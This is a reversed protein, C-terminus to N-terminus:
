TLTVCDLPTFTTTAPSHFPDLAADVNGQSVGLWLGATAVMQRFDIGFKLDGREDLDTLSPQTGYIGGKVKGGLVFHPAATGHDTGQSDNEEVRRGFESYTMVLVDDWRNYAAESLASRLAALAAAVQALLDAHKNIQNTHNDFGGISIKYFPCELGGAICQAVYLAQTGLDNNPFVTTFTPPTGVHSSLDARARKAARQMNLIHALAPNATPGSTADAIQQDTPDTMPATRDLFDKPKSMSIIRVGPALVPNQNARRLLMADTNTDPNLGEANMMRGLWGTGIAPQDDTAGHNWIDIGRFHSRNPNAYGVGHVVAMEGAQWMPQLKELAKHVGFGAPKPLATAGSFTSFPIVQRQTATADTSLRLYDTRAAIYAADGYPVVTNLGDNGGELELLVVCRTTSISRLWEASRVAPALFAALATLSASRLVQRRTLFDNM